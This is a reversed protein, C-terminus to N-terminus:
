TTNMINVHYFENITWDNHDGELFTGENCNGKFDQALPSDLTSAIICQM